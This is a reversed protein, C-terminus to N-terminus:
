PPALWRRLKGLFRSLRQWLVFVLLGTADIGKSSPVTQSGGALRAQLNAVFTDTLRASIDNIIGSRGFQALSGSLTIDAEIAVETAKGGALPTLTYRMVVKARSGSGTDAGSGEVTGSWNEADREVIATGSFSATIPGLKVTMKGKYNQGDDAQTLEAGPLCEAVLAVDALADWVVAPPHDVEFKQTIKM